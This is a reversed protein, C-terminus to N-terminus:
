SKPRNRHQRQLRRQQEEQDEPQAQQQKHAQRRNPSHQLQQQFGHDLANQRLEGQLEGFSDDDHLASVQMEKKVDKRNGKPM